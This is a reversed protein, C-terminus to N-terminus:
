YSTKGSTPIESGDCNISCKNIKRRALIWPFISFGVQISLVTRLQLEKDLVTINGFYGKEVWKSLVARVKKEERKLWYFHFAVDVGSM